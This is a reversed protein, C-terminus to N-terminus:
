QTRIIDFNYVELCIKRYIELSIKKDLNPIPNTAVERPLFEVLYLRGPIKDNIAKITKIREETNATCAYTGECLGRKDVPIMSNPNTGVGDDSYGYLRVCSPNSFREEVHSDLGLGHQVNCSLKYIPGPDLEPHEEGSLYGHLKHATEKSASFPFPPKWGRELLHRAHGVGWKEAWVKRESVNNEGPFRGENILGIVDLARDLLGPTYIRKGTEKASDEALTGAWRDVWFKYKKQMQDISYGYQGYIGNCNNRFPHWAQEEGCKDYLDVHVGARNWHLEDKFYKFAADFRPNPKAFDFRGGTMLCPHIQGELKQKFGWGTGFIRVLDIGAEGVQRAFWKIAQEGQGRWPNFPIDAICLVMKPVRAPKKNERLRPRPEPIIIVPPDDPGPDPDPDPDPQAPPPDPKPKTFISDWLKRLCM